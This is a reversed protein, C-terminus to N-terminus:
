KQQVFTFYIYNTLLSEDTMYVVNNELRLQIKCRPLFTHWHYVLVLLGISSSRPVKM